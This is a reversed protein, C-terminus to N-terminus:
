NQRNTHAACGVIWSGLSGEESENEGGSSRQDSRREGSEQLCSTGADVVCGDVVCDAGSKTKLRVERQRVAGRSKRGQCVDRRDTQTASRRDRAIVSESSNSCSEERVEKRRKRKKEHTKQARWGSTAVDLSKGEEGDMRLIM